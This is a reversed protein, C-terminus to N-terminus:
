SVEQNKHLTQNSEIEFFLTWHIGLVKAIAKAVEVSPRREVNEIMGYYQRTINCEALNVVQEQSLDKNKRATLLIAKLEDKTMVEGGKKAVLPQKNIKNYPVM